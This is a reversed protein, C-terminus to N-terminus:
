DRVLWSLSQHTKTSIKKHDLLEELTWKVQFITLEFNQLNLLEREGHTFFVNFIKPDLGGYFVNNRAIGEEMFGSQLFRFTAM